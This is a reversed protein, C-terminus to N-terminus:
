GPRIPLALKRVRSRDVVVLSRALDQEPIARLVRELLELVETESYNGSRILILPPGKAGALALLRPYDLDCTVVVREEEAAKQLIDSDPARGLGIDWAHVAKHGRANLWGAVAPSLPMDVLFKM